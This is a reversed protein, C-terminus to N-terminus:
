FPQAPIFAGIIIIIHREHINNTFTFHINPVSFLFISAALLSTRCIGVVAILALYRYLMSTGVSCHGESLVGRKGSHLMTRTHELLLRGEWVVEQQLM